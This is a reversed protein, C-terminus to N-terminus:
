QTLGKAFTSISHRNDLDPITQCSSGCKHCPFLMFVKSLLQLLEALKPEPVLGRRAMEALAFCAGHWTSESIAPMDYISAVAVSHISFLGTITDIVQDVFDKPLRESIRAISKSASWRV